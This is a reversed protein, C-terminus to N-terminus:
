IIKYGMPIIHLFFPLGVGSSPTQLVTVNVTGVYNFIIEHDFEQRIIFQLHKHQDVRFSRGYEPIARPSKDTEVLNPYLWPLNCSVTHFIGYTNIKVGMGGGTLKMPPLSPSVPDIFTVPIYIHRGSFSFLSRETYYKTDFPPPLPSPPTMTHSLFVFLFLFVCGGVCVCM